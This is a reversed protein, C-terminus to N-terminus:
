IRENADYVMLLFIRCVQIKDKELGSFYIKFGDKLGNPNVNLWDRM